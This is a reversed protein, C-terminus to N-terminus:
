SGEKEGRITKELARVRGFLSPLDRLMTMVRLWLRHPMTPTGSVIEGPGIDKAVGSQSGIMARDGITLHDSIGVQGGILVGKGIDVSGSIGAQAVILTADGIRVNHGVQVLNDVKVLNGVVTSGLAARDVCTNAGIEVGDGIVVRGIQPVKQLGMEDQYYGFGDAGVVVGAHLICDRGIECGPMITVKPYLVTGEGIRAFDGVYVGPFLTSGTGIEAGRGVYAFPYVSVDGKLRAEPHVFAMESIGPHRPVVPAFFRALQIYAKFADGVKVQDVALDDRFGELLLAGARTRSLEKEYRKQKYFSIECPGAQDLRNIGKIQRNADGRLEGKVLAAIEKLTVGEM